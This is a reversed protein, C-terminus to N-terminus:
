RTPRCYSFSEELFAELSELLILQNLARHLNQEPYTTKYYIDGNLFDTLFRAAQMYIMLLGSAHIHALEEGTFIKQMEELYGDLIASYYSPRIHIHEWNISNEDESAVMSRIMDGLDSFYKGPMLTDLDVPCIVKGTRSDFLINSIKCDHHMVRDPFAPDGRFSVYFQVLYKRQRLEAIVHTSKLLRDVPAQSISEELQRYRLPLDHFGPIIVRLKSTDLGQLARTLSAFCKAASKAAEESEATLPSTSNELFRTARWLRNQGDTWSLGGAATKLPAAINRDPSHLRLYEYTLEYNHLIDGPRKFVSTNIAQLVISPGGEAPSICYSYHILGNGLPRISLPQDGLFQRAAHEVSEDPLLGEM